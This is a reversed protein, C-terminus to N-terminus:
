YIEKIIMLGEPKRIVKLVFDFSDIAMACDFDGKPFEPKSDDFFKLSSKYTKLYNQIQKKENKRLIRM